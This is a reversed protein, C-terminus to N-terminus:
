PLYCGWVRMEFANTRIAFYIQGSLLIYKDQYCFINTKIAFYIQRSLLIYKDQYCFINTRIAFYIQRWPLIYKEQYCFINTRIAFFIQRWLLLMQGHQMKEKNWIYLFRITPVFQQSIVIPWSLQMTMYYVSSPLM